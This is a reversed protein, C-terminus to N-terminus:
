LGLDHRVSRGFHLDIRLVSPNINKTYATWGTILSNIAQSFNKCCEWSTKPFIRLFNTSITFQPFVRSFISYDTRRMWGSFNRFIWHCNELLILKEHDSTSLKNEPKGFFRSKLQKLHQIFLGSQRYPFTYVTWTGYHLSDSQLMKRIFM